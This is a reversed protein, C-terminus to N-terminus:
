ANWEGGRTLKASRHTGPYLRWEARPIPARVTPRVTGAGPPEILAQDVLASRAAGAGPVGGRPVEWARLIFRARRARRAAPSDHELWLVFWISLLICGLM